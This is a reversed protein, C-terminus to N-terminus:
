KKGEIVQQILEQVEQRGAVKSAYARIGTERVKELAVTEDLGSFLIVPVDPKIVLIEKALDLGMMEPMTFDTIVLDFEQPEAKFIHLAELPSTTGVAKYGMKSFRSLNLEVLIDEDDVFLLTFGQETELSDPDIIEDVRDSRAGKVPNRFLESYKAM